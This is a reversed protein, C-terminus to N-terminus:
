IGEVRELAKRALKGRDENIYTTRFIHDKYHEYYKTEDAYFGLAEELEKIRASQQSNHIEWRGMFDKARFYGDDHINTKEAYAKIQLLYGRAEEITGYEQETM